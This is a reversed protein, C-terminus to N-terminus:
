KKWERQADIRMQGEPLKFVKQVVKELAKGGGFVGCVLMPVNQELQDYMQMNGSSITLRIFKSMLTADPDFGECLILKLETSKQMSYEVIKEGDHVGEGIENASGSFKYSYTISMLTEDSWFTFVNKGDVQEFTLRFVVKNGTFLTEAQPFKKLFAKVVASNISYGTQWLLSASRKKAAQDFEVRSVQQVQPAPHVVVRGGRLSHGQYGTAEEKDKQPQRRPPSPALGRPPAVASPRIPVPEMLVVSGTSRQSSQLRM